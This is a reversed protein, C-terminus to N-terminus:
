DGMLIGGSDWQLEVSFDYERQCRTRFPRGSRARGRAACRPVEGAWVRLLADRALRVQCRWGVAREVQSSGMRPRVLRRGRALHSGPVIHMGAQGCRDM